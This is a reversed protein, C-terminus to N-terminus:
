SRAPDDGRPQVDEDAPRHRDKEVEPSEATGEAQTAAHDGRGPLQGSRADEDAAATGRDFATSKANSAPPPTDMTPRPEDDSSVHKPRPAKANPDPTSM